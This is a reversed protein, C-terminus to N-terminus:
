QRARWLAADEEYLSESEGHEACFRRMFVQGGRSVLMGDRWVDEDSRRPTAFCQPCVTTTYEEILYDRPPPGTM